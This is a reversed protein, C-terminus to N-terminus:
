KESRNQNLKSLDQTHRFVNNDINYKFVEGVRKNQHTQEVLFETQVKNTSAESKMKEEHALVQEM